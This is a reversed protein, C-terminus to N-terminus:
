ASLEVWRNLDQQDTINLSMKVTTDKVTKAKNILKEMGLTAKFKQVAYDNGIM